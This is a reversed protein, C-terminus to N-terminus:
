ALALVTVEPADEKPAPGFVIRDPHGEVKVFYSSEPGIRNQVAWCVFGTDGLVAKIGRSPYEVVTREPLEGKPGVAHQVIKAEGGGVGGSVGVIAGDWEGAAPGVEFWQGILAHAILNLRWEEAPAAGKAYAGAVVKAPWGVDTGSVCKFGTLLPPLDAPAPAFDLGVVFGPLPGERQARVMAVALSLAYRNRPAALDARRGAVIWLDAAKPDLLQVGLDVWAVKELDDVWKAGSVQLGAKALAGLAADPGPAGAEAPMWTVWAKKAAM